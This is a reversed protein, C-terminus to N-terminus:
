ELGAAHPLFVTKKLWKHMFIIIKGLCARSL